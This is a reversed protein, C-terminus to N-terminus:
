LHFVLKPELRTLLIAATAGTAFVAVLAVALTEVPPLQGDIVASRLLQVFSALPNFAILWGIGRSRVMEPPYLIPTLYFLIQLGVESLHFTDPFYVNAFGFVVALSWAFAFLLILAPVLMVLSLLNVSGKACWTLVVAVSLALLFHFGGSLSVRLPYIAMPLPQQRIYSEGTIFCQCGQMVAHCLFSWFSLGVLLFPAFERINQNFLSHFVTCIVATMLIPHLLSWAMGLASRRYRSRLDNRVLTLWFYRCSWMSNLYGTM